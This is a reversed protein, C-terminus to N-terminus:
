NLKLSSDPNESKQEFNDYKYSIQMQKDVKSIVM